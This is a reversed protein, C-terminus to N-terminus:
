SGGSSTSTTAATSKEGGSSGGCANLALAALGAAGGTLAARRSVAALPHREPAGERGDEWELRELAEHVPDLDSVNRGGGRTRPCGWGGPLPAPTLTILVETAYRNDLGM